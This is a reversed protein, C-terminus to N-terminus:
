TEEGTSHSHSAARGAADELTKGEDGELATEAAQGLRAIKNRNRRVFGTEARGFERAATYNGEGLVEAPARRATSQPM